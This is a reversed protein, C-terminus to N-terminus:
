CFFVELFFFPMLTTLFSSSWLNGFVVTESNPSCLVRCYTPLVFGGMFFFRCSEIQCFLFDVDVVM